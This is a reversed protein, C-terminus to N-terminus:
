MEAAGLWECTAPSMLLSPSTSSRLFRCASGVINLNGPVRMEPPPNTIGTVPLDSEPDVYLNYPGIVTKNGGQDEATVVINYKGPKKEDIPFSEQWSEKQGFVKEDIDKNGGAGLEFLTALCCFVLIVKKM